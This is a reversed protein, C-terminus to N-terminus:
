NEVKTKKEHSLNKIKLKDHRKNRKKKKVNDNCRNVIIKYYINM